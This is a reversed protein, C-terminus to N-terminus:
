KKNEAIVRRMEGLWQQYRQQLAPNSAPQFMSSPATGPIGSLLYAAGHATAEKLQPRKVRIGAADALRQCLGDVASLGGSVILSKPKGTLTSFEELNATILFVISEIVAVLRAARDGTGVYGSPFDPVWFPSGLGSIGNLYLPPDAVTGLYKGIIKYLGEESTGSEVAFQQLASGAGNVTGELVFTNQDASQWVLSGLLNKATVPEGGVPRQLFAGTGINIYISDTVPEGLAYLAASQDGTVVTVPVAQSGIKVQGYDHRNPVCEPLVAAPVGFLQLLQPDWSRTRYNWLLTRSANAPDAVFPREKVLRFVIFSSLPGCCLNGDRFARQVRPLNDLCWKIKSAGYHPSLMLGTLEHVMDAEGALARMRDATRTDQWSIVPSLASGSSRDWCAISSRQTTIGISHIDRARDGVGAIAGDIARNISQILAEADHEVRDINNRMTVITESKISVIKREHNFIVARSAHGGQDIVIYLSSNGAM